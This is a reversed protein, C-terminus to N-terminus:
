CGAYAGARPRRRAFRPALSASNDLQNDKRSSRRPRLCRAWVPPRFPGQWAAAAKSPTASAAFKPSTASPSPPEWRKSAGPLDAVVATYIQRVAPEPMMKRFQALVEASVVPENPDLLSPGPRRRAARRAAQRSSDATFPKLLFGDAAAAVEPPPNSGSIAFIRAKTRRPARRDIRDREPRADACGDPDRGPQCM